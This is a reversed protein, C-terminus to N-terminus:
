HDRAGPTPEEAPDARDPPENSETTGGAKRLAASGERRQLREQKKQEKARNRDSRAQRYNPTKM